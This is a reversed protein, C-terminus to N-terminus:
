HQHHGGSPVRRGVPPGTIIPEGTRARDVLNAEAANSAAPAGSRSHIALATYVRKTTASCRPCPPPRSSDEANRRQDFPGCQNCRYEYVPM